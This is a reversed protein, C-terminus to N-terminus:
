NAAGAVKKKPQRSKKGLEKEVKLKLMRSANEEIEFTQKELKHEFIRLPQFFWAKRSKKRRLSLSGKLERNKRIDACKGHTYFGRFCSLM